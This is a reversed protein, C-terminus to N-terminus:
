KSATIGFEIWREVQTALAIKIRQTVGTRWQMAEERTADLEATKTKLAAKLAEQEADLRELKAALAHGTEVDTQQLGISSLDALHNAIGDARLRLDRILDSLSQGKM